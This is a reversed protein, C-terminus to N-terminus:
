LRWKEICIGDFIREIMLYLSEKFSEDLWREIQEEEGKM